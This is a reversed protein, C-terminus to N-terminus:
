NTSNKHIEIWWCWNCCCFGHLNSSWSRFFLHVMQGSPALYDAGKIIYSFSLSNDASSTFIVEGTGDGYPTETSAGVIQYEVNINEPAKIDGFFYDEQQCSILTM